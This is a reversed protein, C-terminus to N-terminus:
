RGLRTRQTPVGTLLKNDRRDKRAEYYWPLALREAAAVLAFMAIGVVSLVAIVAFMDATASQNNLILIEYGLGANAGVWEGFVAGLVSFAAAVKLGSFVFPLAAPARAMRFRQLRSAGLTRLLNLLEPEVARLGDITNVAIPFFCVLAIVMLKPRIDFGTWLVFIPAVAVIPVMQSVVLWPYLAREAMRSSHIVIALSVGLAVALLYGYVIERITVWADSALLSKDSWLASGVRTPPPLLIENINTIAVYAQWGGIVVIAVLLPPVIRAIWTRLRGRHDAGVRRRSWRSSLAEAQNV